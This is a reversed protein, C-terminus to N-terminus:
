RSLDDRAASVFGIFSTTFEAVDSRDSTEGDTSCWPRAMRLASDGWQSVEDTGLLIVAGLANRVGDLPGCVLADVEETSPEPLKEADNLALNLENLAAVAQVYSAKREDRLADQRAAEIQREAILYGSAAGVLAGLLASGAGILAILWAAPVAGTRRPAVESGEAM